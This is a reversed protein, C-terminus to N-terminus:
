SIVGMQSESVIGWGLLRWGAGRREFATLIHFSHLSTHFSQSASRRLQLSVLATNRDEWRVETPGWEIGILSRTVEFVPVVSPAVRRLESEDSDAGLRLHSATDFRKALRKTEEVSLKTVGEGTIAHTATREDGKTASLNDTSSCGVLAAVLVTPLLHNMPLPDKPYISVLVFDIWVAGVGYAEQM